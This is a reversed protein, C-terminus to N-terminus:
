LDCWWCDDWCLMQLYDLLRLLLQLLSLLNLLSSTPCPERGVVWWYHAQTRFILLRTHELAVRIPMVRFRWALVTHLLRSLLLLTLSLRLRCRTIILECLWHYPEDFNKFTKYNYFIFVSPPPYWPLAPGGWDCAPPSLPLLNTTLKM